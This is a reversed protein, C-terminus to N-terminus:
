KAVFTVINSFGSISTYRHIVFQQGSSPCDPPIQVPQPLDYTWLSGSNLAMTELYYTQGASVGLGISQNVKGSSDSSVLTRCIWPGSASTSYYVYVSVNPSTAGTITIYGGTTPTVTIGTPTIPIPSFINSYNCYFTGNGTVPIDNIRSSGYGTMSFILAYTGQQINTLSFIGNSNTTTAISTGDISVTVSTVPYTYYGEFLSGKINGTLAPGPPGQQGQPGTAGTAGTAGNSGNTGSSGNSGSGSSCGAILFLFALSFFLLRSLNTKM